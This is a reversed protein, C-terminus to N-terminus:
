NRVRWAKREAADLVGDHNSDLIAFRRDLIADLEPRSLFGDKNTDLAKFVAEGDQVTEVTIDKRGQLVATLEAASVRGDHDTDAQMILDGRAARFEAPVVKGDGDADLTPQAFATGASLIMAVAALMPIKM